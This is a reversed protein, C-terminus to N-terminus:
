PHGSLFRGYRRPVTRRDGRLRELQEPPPVVGERAAFAVAGNGGAATFETMFLGGGSIARTIAGWLGRTGAAATSTRLQVNPTMWSLEGPPAVILDGAELGIELVPLTTGTIRSQV